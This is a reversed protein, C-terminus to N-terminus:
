LRKAEAGSDSALGLEDAAGTAALAEETGFAAEVVEFFNEVREVGRKKPPSMPRGSSVQLSCWACAARQAVVIGGVVGDDDAADEIAGGAGAVGDFVQEEVLHEVELMGHTHAAQAAADMGAFEFGLLALKGLEVFGQGEDLSELDSDLAAEFKTCRRWSKKSLGERYGAYDGALPRLGWGAAPRPHKLM